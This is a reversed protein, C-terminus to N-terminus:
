KPQNEKDVKDLLNNIRREIRDLLNLTFLCAVFAGLALAFTLGIILKADLNITSDIM